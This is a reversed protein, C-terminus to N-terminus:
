PNLYVIYNIVSTDVVSTSTIILSGISINSTLFGPTGSISNYSVVGIYTGIVPPLPITITGASLTATGAIITPANIWELLGPTATQSLIQGVTGDVDFNLSIIPATTGDFVVLGGDAAATIETITGTAADIWAVEGPTATQSLVQGATGAVACNLGVTPSATFGNGVILGAEAGGGSTISTVASVGSFAMEGSGADQLQLFQGATGGAVINLAVTPNITTGGIIIYDDGATVETVIGSGADIWELEGAIASQSLIQGSTGAAACNLGITPTATFGNGVILGAESGVGSSISTITGGPVASWTMEGTGANQLKLFQNVSGGALVNLAVTPDTVSGAITIYNDGATISNVTGGDGAGWGLDTASNGIIFATEKTWTGAIPLSIVPNAGATITLPLTANVSDVAGGGGGGGVYAKVAELVPLNTLLSNISM